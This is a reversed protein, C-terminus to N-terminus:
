GSTVTCQPLRVYPGPKNNLNEIRGADAIYDLVKGVSWDRHFFMYRPPVNSDM